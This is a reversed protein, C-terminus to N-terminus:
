TFPINTRSATKSSAKSSLVIDDVDMSRSYNRNNNPDMVIPSLTEQASENDNIIENNIALYSSNSCRQQQLTSQPQQKFSKRELNSM